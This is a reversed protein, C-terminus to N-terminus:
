GVITMPPLDFMRKGQPVLRVRVEFEGVKRHESLIEVDKGCEEAERLLDRMTEPLSDKFAQPGWIIKAEPKV